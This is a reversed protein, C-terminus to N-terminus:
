FLACLGAVITAVEAIKKGAAIAQDLDESLMNRPNEVLLLRAAAMKAM